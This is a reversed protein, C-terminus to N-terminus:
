GSAKRQNFRLIGLTIIGGGVASAAAILLCDLPSAEFVGTTLTESIYFVLPTAITTIGVAIYGSYLLSAKKTAAGAGILITSILWALILLVAFSVM